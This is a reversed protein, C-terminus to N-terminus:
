AAILNKMKVIPPEANRSAAIMKRYTFAPETRPVGVNLQSSRDFRGNDTEVARHSKRPKKTANATFTGSTGSEVHCGSAYSCAGVAPVSTSAASSALIPAYPISRQQREINGCAVTHNRVVASTSATIAIM